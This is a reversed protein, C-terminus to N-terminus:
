KIQEYGKLIRNLVSSSIERKQTLRWNLPSFRLSFCKQEEDSLHDTKPIALFFHKKRKDKAFTIRMEKQAMEIKEKSDQFLIFLMKKEDSYQQIIVSPKGLRKIEFTAQVIM